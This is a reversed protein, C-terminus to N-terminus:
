IETDKIRKAQKPRRNCDTRDKGVQAKKASANAPSLYSAQLGVGTLRPPGPIKQGRAGRDRMDSVRKAGRCIKSVLQRQGPTMIHVNVCPAQCSHTANRTNSEYGELLVLRVCLVVYLGKPGRRFM